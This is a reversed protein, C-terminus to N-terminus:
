CDGGKLGISPLEIGGISSGWLLLRARMEASGDLLAQMEGSHHRGFFMMKCACSSFDGGSILNLAFFFWKSTTAGTVTCGRLILKPEKSQAERQVPQM